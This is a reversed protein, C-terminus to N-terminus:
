SCGCHEFAEEVCLDDWATCCCFADKACVKKACEGCTENMPTGTKCLEHCTTSECGPACAGKVCTHSCCDENRQCTGTSCACQNGACVGSCCEYGQKCSAGSTGCGLGCRKKYVDCVYPDCCTGEVGKCSADPPLCKQQHCIGLKDSGEVEGTPVCWLDNCCHKDSTASPDVVCAEGEGRCGPTFGCTGKTSGPATICQRGACCTDGVDCVGGEPTCINEVCTHDEGCKKSCCDANNQCSQGLERCEIGGCTSTRVDCGLPSCCLNSTAQTCTAGDAKCCRKNENDPACDPDGPACCATKGALFGCCDEARQCPKDVENCVPPINLCRRAASCKSLCSKDTLSALWSAREDPSAHELSAGVHHDCNPYKYCARLLDCLEVSSDAYGEADVCSSLVIAAPLGAGLALLM